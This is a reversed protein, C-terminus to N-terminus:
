FKYGVSLGVMHADANDIEGDRVGDDRGDIDRDMIMLYTYNVDVMWNDWHFGVGGNFLHRDNAPVMYDITDDQVPSQDFVYGARLDLWDLVAYEAGINFRWVDEWNKPSLTQDVLVPGPRPVVADGYNIKLEDYKSWLTYVGGIEVSFKEIPYIAVGFSFSDPLTVTGSASTDRFAGFTDLPTGSYASPMSFDADGTVKMTVPSRYSLGLKAYDCPQYHLAMNFGYGM